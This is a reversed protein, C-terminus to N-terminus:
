LAPPLVVVKAPVAPPSQFVIDPVYVLVPESPDPVQLAVFIRGVGVGVGVGAGSVTAGAATVKLQEPVVPTGVDWVNVTVPPVWLLYLTEM